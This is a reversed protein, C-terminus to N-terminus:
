YYYCKIIDVGSATVATTQVMNNGNTTVTLIGTPKRATNIVETTRRVTAQITTLVATHQTQQQPHVITALPVTTRRLKRTHLIVSFSEDDTKNKNTQPTKLFLLNMVNKM